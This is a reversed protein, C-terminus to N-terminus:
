SQKNLSKLNISYLTIFVGFIIAFVGVLYTVAVAGEFPNIFLVISFIIVILANLLMLWRTKAEKHANMANFLQSFGVTIAWIALIIIFIDLAFRPFLFIVLGIIIDFVGEYMWNKWKRNHEKHSIAGAILFIGGIIIIIGFYRMLIVLTTGPMSLAFIGFLIALVGKLTLLWWNKYLKISKM